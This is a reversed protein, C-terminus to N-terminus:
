DENNDESEAEKNPESEAEKNPESKAKVWDSLWVSVKSEKHTQLRIM